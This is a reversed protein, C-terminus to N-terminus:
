NKNSVTQSPPSSGTMRSNSLCGPGRCVSKLASSLALSLHSTENGADRPLGKHETLFVGKAVDEDWAASLRPGTTLVFSPIHLCM